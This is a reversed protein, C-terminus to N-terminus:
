GTRRYQNKMSRLRLGYPIGVKATIEKGLNDLAAYYKARAQAADTHLEFMELEVLIEQAILARETLLNIKDTQGLTIM